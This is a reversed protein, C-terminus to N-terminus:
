ADKEQEILRMEEEFMIEWQPLFYDRFITYEEEWGILDRQTFGDDVPPSMCVLFICDNRDKLLVPDDHCPPMQTQQPCEFKEDKMGSKRMNEAYQNFLSVWNTFTSRWNLYTSRWEKLESTQEYVVETRIVESTTFYAVSSTLGYVTGSISTVTSTYHTEAELGQVCKFLADGTSTVEITIPLETSNTASISFRYVDGSAASSIQMCAGGSFTKVAQVMILEKRRHTVVELRSWDSSIYDDATIVRIAYRTDPELEDICERYLRLPLTETIMFTDSFDGDLHSIEIKYSSGESNSVFSFCVKEDTVNVLSLTM